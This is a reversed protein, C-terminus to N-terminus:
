AEDVYVCPGRAQVGRQWLAGARTRERLAVAQVICAVFMLGWGCVQQLAVDEARNPSPLPDEFVVACEGLSEAGEETQGRCRGVAM